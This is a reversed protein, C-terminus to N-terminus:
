NEGDTATNPEEVPLDPRAAANAKRARSVADDTKCLNECPLGDSDRDLKSAGCHDFRWVAEQCSAMDKCYRETCSLDQAASVTSVTIAIGVAILCRM